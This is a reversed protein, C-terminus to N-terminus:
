VRFAIGDLSVYTNNGITPTVLGDTGIEVIGFAGNSAVSFIMKKSPRYGTPLTFVSQNMSGSKVVGRIRVFGDLSKFYQAVNHTTANYDVWSNTYSATIYDENSGRSRELTELRGEISRIIKIINDYIM